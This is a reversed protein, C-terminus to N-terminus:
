WRPQIRLFATQSGVRCFVAVENPKENAVKEVAEKYEDLNTVPYDGFRMIIVGPRFGALDAWSGSKVRRVIVGQDDESLNIMIRLDTTIERVTLGFTEDEFESADRSSKPKEALTVRLETPAGDRLLRIPAEVAAGTERVLKTFRLVDRNQKARLPVGNFSKLVDGRELGAREAPSKPVVANIVIGGTAELGWYEALEDTLPQTIIGIWADPSDDPEEEESPPNEIFEAFLDATYVLPHGYRIHLDGGENPSLDFGVVGVVDGRSNVVPGGVTGFPIPDDICYTTRPTDLVAGIRRALVSCTFDLSESLIGFLLVPDGVSLSVSKAFSVHPLDLPEDSELRVFCVNVDDPKTLLKAGYEQEDEGQGVRVRINFPDSDERKMHGHTMVLGDASVLLGLARTNRKSVKGSNPNTIESSYSLFCVAPAMEEHQGEIFSQSFVPPADAGVALVPMAAAFFVVAIGHSLGNRCLSNLM